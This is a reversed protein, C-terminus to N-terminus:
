QYEIHKTKKILVQYGMSILEYQGEKEKLFLDVGEKTEDSWGYDDILMYAGVKMCYIYKTCDHYVGEKRHDGDVYIFQFRYDKVDEYADVSKKRILNVPKNKTNSIFRDYQGNFFTLNKNTEIDQERLNDVYYNDELPDICIVRGGENLMNDCIYNTTLGEFVGLELALDVKPLEATNIKFENNWLQTYKEMVEYSLLYNRLEYDENFNKDTVKVFGLEDEWYYVAYGYKNALSIVDSFKRNTLKYHPSYEVQICKVKKDKLLGECGLLVDYEAGEVDIKICDVNAINNEKCYADITVSKVVGKKMPLYDWQPNHYIGSLGNNENTFYFFDLQKGDEKYAALLNYTINKKYDYKVRTFNLLLENPEFLHITCDEKLEDLVIDSWTGKNSGVDIITPKGKFRSLMYLVSDRESAGVSM